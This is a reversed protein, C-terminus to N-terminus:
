PKGGFLLRWAAQYGRASRDPPTYTRLVYRTLKEGELGKAAGKDLFRRLVACCGYAQWYFGKYKPMRTGTLPDIARGMVGFALRQSRRLTWMSSEKQGIAAVARVDLDYETCALDLISAYGAKGRMGSYLIADVQDNARVTTAVFNLTCFESDFPELAPLTGLTVVAIVAIM